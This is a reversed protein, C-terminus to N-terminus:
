PVSETVTYIMITDFVTGEDNSPLPSVCYFQISNQLVRIDFPCLSDAKEGLAYERLRYDEIVVLKGNTVAEYVEDYSTDINDGTEPDPKAIYAVFVEGGGGGPIDINGDGLLSQNNVTKINRGSVLIDQKGELYMFFVEKLTEIDEETVLHIDGSGLLSEGNITKISEGSVLETQLTTATSTWSSGHVRYQFLNYKGQLTALVIVIPDGTAQNISVLGAYYRNPDDPRQVMIFKLGKEADLAEKLEEDTTVGVQAIMIEPLAGLRQLEEGHESITTQVEACCEELATVRPELDSSGGRKRALAELRIIEDTLQKKSYDNYFM